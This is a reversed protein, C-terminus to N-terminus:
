ILGRNILSDVQARFASDRQYKAAIVAAPLRRYEEVTLTGTAVAQQQQKPARQKEYADYHRRFAADTKYRRQLEWASTRPNEIFDVIEKPIANAADVRDHMTGKFPKIVGANTLGIYSRELHSKSFYGGQTEWLEQARAVIKALTEPHQTARRTTMWEIAAAEVDPHYSM